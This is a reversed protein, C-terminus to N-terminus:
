IIFMLVFIATMTVLAIAMASCGALLPPANRQRLIIWGALGVLAPVGITLVNYLMDMACGWDAEGDTLM